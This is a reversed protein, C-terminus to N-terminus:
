VLLLSNNRSEGRYYVIIKKLNYGGKNLVIKVYRRSHGNLTLTRVGPYREGQVLVRRRDGGGCIPAMQRYMKRPAVPLGM